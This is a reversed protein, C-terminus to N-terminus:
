ASPRTVYRIFSRRAVPLLTDELPLKLDTLALYVAPQPLEPYRRIVEMKIHQYTNAATKPWTPVYRLRLGKYRADKRELLTVTYAYARVEKQTAYHLLLYGEQRYLPLIGIPEIRINQEVFDYIGAGDDLTPKMRQMAFDIIADLEQMLGDDTLLQEYVLQLQQLSMGSLNKPFHEQLFKKNQRLKQLNNCQGVLESIQPYLRVESFRQQVKKLYALLRNM